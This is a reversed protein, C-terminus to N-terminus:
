FRFMQVQTRLQAAAEALQEITQNINTIAGTSQDVINAVGTINNAIEASGTAAEAASRSMENTTATQEEVASAITLQYNNITGIIESIQAIANIANHTDNQIAEVRRSVDDAARASEGALDKVESAVVAFGKGAEGARAAEITANLALLNTQEAISTITKIVDGIEKSSDSLRSITANTNEATNAATQAVATAEQANQAIERISASMQESGAAVTQVNGSVQEAATAVVGAQASTEQSSAAVETSAATLSQAMEASAAANDVVAALVTALERQATALSSAMQGIEDHSDVTVNKTLDGAALATLGEKVIDVNRRIRSAVFQGLGMALAIGIIAVVLFTITSQKATALATEGEVIAYQTAEDSLADLHAVMDNALPVIKQVRTLQINATDGARVAPLLDDEVASRYQTYTDNFAALPEPFVGMEEYLGVVIQYHSDTESFEEEVVSIYDEQRQRDNTSTVNAVNVRASWVSQKLTDVEALYESVISSIVVTSASLRTFATASLVTIIIAVASAISIAGLIKSRIGLRGIFSPRKGESGYSYSNVDQSM